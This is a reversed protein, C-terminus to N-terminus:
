VGGAYLAYLGNAIDRFIPAAWESGSEMGEALVVIAYRPERAPWFGAFWAEVVETGDERYVGTQASATKGGAGGAVPMAGTGSGEEVVQVMMARLKATTEETFVRNKVCDETETLAGGELTGLWLKPTVAYGGNAIAAVLKAVQIPTASLTGQGFAFNAVDAPNALESLSQLHGDATEWGDAFVDRVGFGLNAAAEQIREPGLNLALNIFYTNCSFKLATAMDIENHGYAWHCAFTKGHVDTSGTCTYKWGASYGADLAAGAVLLKFTSGVPWAAFARNLFPLRDDTVSAALNGVDYAPCSAAALIEGTKVNMVVAAGSEVHSALAKEARRQVESDITLVVGDTSNEGSLTLTPVTNKLVSGTGDAKYSISVSRGHTSLFEDFALEAGCVGAGDATYGLLHAALGGDAYRKRSQFPYVGSGALWDPADTVTFPVAAAMKGAYEPSLASLRAQAEGEMLQPFVVASEVEEAGVLPRLYRDYIFARETLVNITRSSQVEAAQALTDGSSLSAVRTFLLGFVLVLGCYFAIVRRSM